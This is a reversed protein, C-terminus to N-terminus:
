RLVVDNRVAKVGRVARAIREAQRIEEMSKAFGSLQVTGKYTEVSVNLASVVKDAVFAAKVKTTIASDDILEGTSESSPTSGCGALAFVLTVPLLWMRTAFRNNKM